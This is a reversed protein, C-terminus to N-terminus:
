EDEKKKKFFKDWLIDSMTEAKERENESQRKAIWAPFPNLPIGIAECLIACGLAQKFLNISDEISTILLYLVALPLIISAFGFICQKAMGPKLGKYIYKILTSAFVVLIIIAVFGWDTLSIKSDNTFIGYRWAIFAFPLAAACTVWLVFRISFVTKPHEECWEVLSKKKEKEESETKEEDAM